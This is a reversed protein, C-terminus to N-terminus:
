FRNLNIGYIAQLMALAVFGVMAGFVLILTPEILSVMARLARRVENDYADAVRLSLAELQSTEEGVAIMQVALPPLVGSLASALAGGETVAAVAQDIGERFVLNTASARAIGLAPV